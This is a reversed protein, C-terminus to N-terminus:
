EKARDGGNGVAPKGPQGGICYLARDSRSFFQGASPTLSARFNEGAPAGLENRAVVKRTPGPELVVTTGEDNQFYALGGAAVPSSTFKGGLREKWVEKGTAAEYCTAFGAMDVVVVFDGVVIPSPQDRDGRRPTHWAMHTKTVDGQGGPRVAYMDGKLGNVLFVLGDGPTATPEGRGNFSRCSWLPKGTAPDYATVASAGNLVLEDRGGAHVLVPTSWGGRDPVDRPTRWVTRGTRRDLAILSAEKEADCNQIVLDGVLIPSAATGWPGEFPGLNRSWLPKGEVTYCHIGGRGFFAVVREGDTACSASAWGNMPHTKEPTGTWAVQEWLVHGNKRDVCLVIRQKGNELATTLFIRNGWVVPSSQGRGKLPTRWVVSRADWRVPLGTEASHGDGAPGRWRPWNSEAGVPSTLALPVLLALGWVTRSGCGNALVPRRRIRITQHWVDM